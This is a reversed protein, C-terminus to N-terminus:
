IIWQIAGQVNDVLIDFLRKVVSNDGDRVIDLYLAINALVLIWLTQKSEKKKSEQWMERFLTDNEHQNEKLTCLRDLLIICAELKENQEKTETILEVHKPAAKSKLEDM